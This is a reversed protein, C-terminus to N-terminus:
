EVFFAREVTTQQGSNDAAVGKLVHKGKTWNAPVRCTGNAPQGAAFPGPFVCLKTSDFEDESVRDLYVTMRMIGEEDTGKITIETTSGRRIRANQRPSAFALSPAQTGSYFQASRSESFRGAGDKVRLTATHAGSSLGGVQVAIGQSEPLDRGDVTAHARYDATSWNGDDHLGSASLVYVSTKGTAPSVEIKVFTPAEWDLPVTTEGRQNARESTAQVLLKSARGGRLQFTAQEKENLSYHQQMTGEVFVRVTVPPELMDEVHFSMELQRGPSAILTGKGVLHDVLIRLSETPEGSVVSGVPTREMGFHRVVTQMGKVLGHGLYDDIPTHDAGSLLHYTVNKPNQDMARGVHNDGRYGGPQDSDPYAAGGSRWTFGDDTSAIMAYRCRTEKVDTIYQQVNRTLSTGLWGFAPAIGILLIKPNDYRRLTRLTQHVGYSRACVLLEQGSEMADDILSTLGLELSKPYDGRQGDMIFRSLYVLVLPRHLADSLKKAEEKGEELDKLSANVYIWRYKRVAERAEGVMLRQKQAKGPVNLAWFTGTWEIDDARALPCAVALLLALITVGLVSRGRFLQNM